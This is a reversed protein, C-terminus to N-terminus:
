NLSELFLETEKIKKASEMAKNSIPIQMTMRKMESALCIGLKWTMMMKMQKRNLLKDKIRIKSIRNLLVQTNM